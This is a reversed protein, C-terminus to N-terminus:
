SSHSQAGQPARASKRRYTLVLAAIATLLFATSAPIPVAALKIEYFGLSLSKEKGVPAIKDSYWEGPILPDYIAYFSFACNGPGCPEMATSNFVAGLSSGTGGIDNAAKNYQPAQSGTGLQDYTIGGVTVSMSTIAGGGMPAHFMGLVNQTGASYINFTIGSAVGASFVLTLATLAASMWGNIRTM